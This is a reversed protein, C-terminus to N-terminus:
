KNGFFQHIHQILDFGTVCQVAMSLIMIFLCLTTVAAAAIPVILLATKVWDKM